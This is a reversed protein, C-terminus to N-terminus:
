GPLTDHPNYTEYNLMPDLPKEAEISITSALGPPTEPRAVIVTINDDGGADIAIEVFRQCASQPSECENMVDLLLEDKVHRHLGDSCMVIADGEHLNVSRVEATLANESKGGLVNWLVNSWRSGAEEEPKMGGSEIMRRALTHDTTLREVEGDRVLYCRSDGAHVVYMKPWLVYCMTLTTGMGDLAANQRGEEQIRHHTERMLTKLSDIFENEADLGLQFFWHVNNLLREVLFDIAMSSALEGALHGGMGDAVLLVHGQVRGFLRSQKEIPLSTEGVLMSKNLQAILFQDQNNQRKMGVHTMGFFSQEDIMQPQGDANPQDSPPTTM